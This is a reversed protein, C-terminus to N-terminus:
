ATEKERNLWRLTIEGLRANRQRLITCHPLAELFMEGYRRTLVRKDLVAVVGEDSRRRILRGFGQRFRLVAEPISYEFFPNEFTESRAAFIPDSPVDFPLRPIVLAQLSPGPVDVGEWFSRTGLLVARSDPEKFRKLLQQRSAGQLQALMEIGSARLAGEIAQATQRLQAYSTFLVMTRGGLASAVDVIAEEVYRQYGPQNPEPIDSSLYVLTSNEYDFPSGVALENASGAHLRQRLYDFNAEGYSDPGATQLTASTLIVSEKKGFIHEEVLPGVHLPAAHLSVRERFVEVWYIMQESPNSLLQDLNRRAEELDRGNALLAARLEEEDDLDLQSGVEELVGALKEFDRAISQLHSNLNDWSIELDDYGPQVRLASTVRIQQAFQAQAQLHDQLFYDLTAFFEDVRVLALEAEARLQGAFEALRGQQRAPLARNLRGMVDALLGSRESSVDRLVTELLRRDISFSLGSTVASELHHAEDVVLDEFPPLVMNELSVDALLLAHNVIVIHAQEAKQRAMYLPCRESACQDPTCVANEGNLRSWVMREGPTRLPLDAVDGTQTLPLWLLIRAYVVMEDASGPGRRRMQQFLRTCLYNSRGKRVAARVEFPLCRQLEPIDKHILQDQLNITNTSIVVRRGNQVAWFAAPLLYGVSKGTGTGAEVLLHDGRNFTDAVALMMEEQQPRYEFGDFVRSFNGAPRLMDALVDIDLALVEENPTVASGELKPPDFLRPLQGRRRLEAGGFAQKAREALVEEFFLTEPWGIQQGARVIEDLQSLPQQLARERLALFLEITLIADQHARHQQRGDPLPLYLFDALAELGFRGAEPVLISALTLTDIRHNGIGLREERLFALDFEVNHGVLVHNSLVPRLRSRVSAMVPAEAVMADDIGTLNTIEPPINRQPYVLTSFEDLLSNGRFTIAAVEIIADRVADFGTTEVDVAVYTMESM